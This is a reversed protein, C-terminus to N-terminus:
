MRMRGASELRRCRRGELRGQPRGLVPEAPLAAVRDVVVGGRRGIWM